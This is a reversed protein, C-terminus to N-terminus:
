CRLFCTDVPDPCGFGMTPVVHDLMPIDKNFPFDSADTTFVSDYTLFNVLIAQSIFDVCTYLANSAFLVWLSANTQSATVDVALYATCAIFDATILYLLAKSGKNTKLRIRIFTAFIVCYIGILRRMFTLIQILHQRQVISVM